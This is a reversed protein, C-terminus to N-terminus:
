PAENMRTKQLALIEWKGGNKGLLMRGRTWVKGPATETLGPPLGRYGTLLVNLDVLVLSGTLASMRRVTATQVSGQFPGGFLFVHVDQVAQRSPVVGGLPNVFETDLAYHSAYAVGDNRAWADEWSALLAAIEAATGPPVGPLAASAATTVEVGDHTAPPATPTQSCAAASLLLALVGTWAAASPPTSRAM